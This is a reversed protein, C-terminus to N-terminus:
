DKKPRPLSKKSDMKQLEKHTKKLDGRVANIDKEAPLAEPMTGGISRITGRVKQGVSLATEELLWQGRISEHRIKAETQTIRFLNAALEEKGMFDLVTRGSPVGKRAKLRGLNMNYLGRYGSNQFFAYNEVGARNATSSLAKEGDAVEERVAVREVTDAQVMAQRAVEALTAFYAQATAVEPKRPDGNMAILYCAFRSMKMDARPEGGVERYAPTFNEAAAIGLSACAALARGVVKNFSDASQYGLLTQLQSQWWWRHGNGSGMAEFGADSDIPAAFPNVGETVPRELIQDLDRFSQFAM